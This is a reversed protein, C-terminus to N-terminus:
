EAAPEEAAEEVVPEEVPKETVPPMLVTDIVHIYGNKCKLNATIVNAGDVSIETAAKGAKIALKTGHLTEIDAMISMKACSNSTGAVHHKLVENLRETDALLSEVVGEELAAFAEDSPAFLTILGGKLTDVLGAKTVATLLTSFTGVATATEVVDSHSTLSREGFGAKVEVKLSRATRGLNKMISEHTAASAKNKLFDDNEPTYLSTLGAADSVSRISRKMKRSMNATSGDKTVMSLRSVMCFKSTGKFAVTTTALFVVVLCLLINMTSMKFALQLWKNFINTYDETIKM